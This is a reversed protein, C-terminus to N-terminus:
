QKVGQVKVRGTDPLDSEFALKSEPLLKLDEETPSAARQLARVYHIIAWRQQPLIQTAYSPMLGQGLSITHYIRGDPWNKVKESFLPPPQTFKPVIYGHGDGLAGHCVVCYTLYYKRGTELIEQTPPYPNKMAAAQSTDALGFRYPEYGRPVTGNVPMRMAVGTANTSDYEQAQVSWQRYMDPMYELQPTERYGCSIMMLAGFILFCLQLYSNNLIRRCIGAAYPTM